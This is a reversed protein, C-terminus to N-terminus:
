IIRTPPVGLGKLICNLCVFYNGVVYDAVPQTIEVKMANSATEHCISCEEKEKLVEMM